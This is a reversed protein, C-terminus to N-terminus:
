IEMMVSQVLLHYEWRYSYCPFVTKVEREERNKLLPRILHPYEIKEFLRPFMVVPLILNLSTELICKRGLEVDGVYIGISVCGM